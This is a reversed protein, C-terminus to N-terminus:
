LYQFFATVRVNSQNSEATAAPSHIAFVCIYRSGALAPVTLDFGELALLGDDYRKTLGRVEVPPGAPADSM